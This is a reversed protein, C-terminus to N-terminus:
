KSEEKGLTLASTGDSFTFMYSIRREEPERAHDDCFYHPPGIPKRTVYITDPFTEAVSDRVGCTAPKGCVECVINDM